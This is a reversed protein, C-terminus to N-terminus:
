CSKIIKKNSKTALSLNRFFKFFYNEILIYGTLKKLLQLYSEDAACRSNFFLCGEGKGYSLVDEFTNDVVYWGSDRYLAWTLGSFPKKFGM